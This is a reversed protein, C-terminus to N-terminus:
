TSTGGNARAVQNRSMPEGDASVIRGDILSAGDPLRDIVYVGAHHVVGPTSPRIELAKVYV